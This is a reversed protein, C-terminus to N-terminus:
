RRRRGILPQTKWRFLRIATMSRLDPGPPLGTSPQFPCSAGRASTRRHIFSDTDEASLRRRLRGLTSSACANRPSRTRGSDSAKKFQLWPPLDAFGKM